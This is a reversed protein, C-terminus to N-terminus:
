IRIKYKKHLYQTHSLSLCDPSILKFSSFKYNSIVFAFHVHGICFFLKLCLVVVLPRCFRSLYLSVSLSPCYYYYYLIIIEM